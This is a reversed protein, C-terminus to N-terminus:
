SASEATTHKLRCIICDVLWGDLLVEALRLVRHIFLERERETSQPERKSCIIYFRKCHYHRVSQSNLIFYSTIFGFFCVFFFTHFVCLLLLLFLAGCKSTKSRFTPWSLPLNTSSLSGFLLLAILRKNIERGRETHIFTHM